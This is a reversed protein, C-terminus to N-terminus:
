VEEDDSDFYGDPDKLRHQAYHSALEDCLAENEGIHEEELNRDGLNFDTANFHKNHHQQALLLCSGTNYESVRNSRHLHEHSLRKGLLTIQSPGDHRM